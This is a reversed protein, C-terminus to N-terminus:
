TATLYKQDAEEQERRRAEDIVAVLVLGLADSDAEIEDRADPYADQLRSWEALQHKLLREVRRLEIARLDHLHVPRKM